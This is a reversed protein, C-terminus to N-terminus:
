FRCILFLKSIFYIYINKKGYSHISYYSEWFNPRALFVNRIAKTELESDAAFGAFLISFTKKIEFIVHRM